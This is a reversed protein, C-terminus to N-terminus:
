LKRFRNDFKCFDCVYDIGIKGASSNYDNHVQRLLSTKGVRKAGIAIVKIQKEWKVTREINRIKSARWYLALCKKGNSIPQLAYQKCVHQWFPENDLAIYAGKCCWSLCFIALVHEVNQAILVWIESPLTQMIQKLLSPVHITGRRQMATYDPEDM